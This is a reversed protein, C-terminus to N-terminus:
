RVQVARVVGVSDSNRLDFYSVFQGDVYGSQECITVTSLPFWLAAARPDDLIRYVAGSRMVLLDGDRQALTDEWCAAQAVNAMFLALVVAVFFGKSRNKM